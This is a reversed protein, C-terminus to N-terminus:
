ARTSGAFLRRLCFAEALHLAVFSATFSAIFPVPRLQVVGLMVAVYGGFFVLKGAFATVMVSTLQVPARRYTREALMWTGGAVALPAIMGFFLEVGNQWGLLASAAVWSLATAAVMWGVVKM